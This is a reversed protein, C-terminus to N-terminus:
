LMKQMFRADGYAPDLQYFEFGLRQYLASAGRNGELVELTLKCCHMQRAIRELEALLASGIGRGQHAADVALDHVNILPSAKFTSVSWFANLLGVAREDHWALLGIYTPCAALQDPLRQLIQDPLAEGMGTESRAYANLQDCLGNRHKEDDLNIRVIKM